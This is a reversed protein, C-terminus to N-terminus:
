GLTVEFDNSIEHFSERELMLCGAQSYALCYSLIKLRQYM